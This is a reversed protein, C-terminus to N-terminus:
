SCGGSAEAKSDGEPVLLCGWPRGRINSGRREHALVAFMWEDRGKAQDVRIPPTLNQARRAPSSPPETAPRLTRRLPATSAKTSATPM